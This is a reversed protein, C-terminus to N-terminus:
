RRELSILSRLSVLVMKWLSNGSNSGASTSGASGRRGGGARGAGRRGAGPAVGRTGQSGCLACGAASAVLSARDGVSWIFSDDWLHHSVFTPLMKLRRDDLVDIRSKGLQPKLAHRRGPPAPLIGRACPPHRPAPLRRLARCAAITGPSACVAKSGPTGSHSFGAASARDGPLQVCLSGPPFRPFQFM